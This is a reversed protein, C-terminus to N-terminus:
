RSGSAAAGSEARKGQLESLQKTLVDREKAISAERAQAAALKADLEEPSAARKLENYAKQADGQEKMSAESARRREKALKADADALRKRAADLKAKAAAIAETTEKARKAEADKREIRKECSAISADIEALAHAKEKGQGDQSPPKVPVAIGPDPAPAQPVTEGALHGCMAILPIIILIRM